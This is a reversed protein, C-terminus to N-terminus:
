REREEGEEKVYWGPWTEKSGAKGADKCRILMSCIVRGGGGDCQVIGRQM